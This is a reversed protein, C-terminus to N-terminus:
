APEGRIAATVTASRRRAEALFALPSAINRGLWGPERSNWRFPELDRSTRDLWYAVALARVHDPDTRVGVQECYEHLWTYPVRM